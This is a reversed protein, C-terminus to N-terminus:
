SHRNVENSNRCTCQFDDVSSLFACCNSAFIFECDTFPIDFPRQAFQAQTMDREMMTMRSEASVTNRQIATVM